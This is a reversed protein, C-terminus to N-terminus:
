RRVRITVAVGSSRAHMLEGIREWMGDAVTSIVCHHPHTARAIVMPGAWRVLGHDSTKVDIHIMEAGLRDEAADALVCPMAFLARDM